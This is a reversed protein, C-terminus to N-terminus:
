IGISVDNEAFTQVKDELYNELELAGEEVNVRDVKVVDFYSTLLDVIDGREVQDEQEEVMGDGFIKLKITPSPVFIEDVFLRQNFYAESIDVGRAYFDPVEIDLITTKSYNQLSAQFNQRNKPQFRFGEIGVFAEK